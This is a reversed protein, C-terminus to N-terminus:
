FSFLLMGRHLMRRKEKSVEGADTLMLATPYECLSLNMDHRVNRDLTKPQASGGELSQMAQENAKNTNTM